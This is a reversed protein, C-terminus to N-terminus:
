RKSVYVPLPLPVFRDQRCQGKSGCMKPELGPRCEVESESLYLTIPDRLVQRGKDSRLSTTIFLDEALRKRIPM